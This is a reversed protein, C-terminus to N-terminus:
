AIFLYFYNYLSVSISKWWNVEIKPHKQEPSESVTITFLKISHSSLSMHDFVQHILGCILLFYTPCELDCWFHKISAINAFDYALPFSFLLCSLVLDAVTFALIMRQGSPHPSPSNAYSEFCSPKTSLIHPQSNQHPYVVLKLHGHLCFAFLIFIHIDSRKGESRRCAVRTKHGKVFVWSFALFCFFRNIGHKWLAPHFHVSLLDPPWLFCPWCM